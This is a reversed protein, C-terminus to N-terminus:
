NPQNRQGIQANLQEMQHRVNVIDTAGTPGIHENAQHRSEQM